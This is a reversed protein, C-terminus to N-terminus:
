GERIDTREVDKALHIWPQMQEPQAFPPALNEEQLAAPQPCHDAGPVLSLTTPLDSAQIGPCTQLHLLVWGRRVDTGCDRIHPGSGM